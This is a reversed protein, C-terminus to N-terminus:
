KKFFGKFKNKFSGDNKEETVEEDDEDDLENLFDDDDEDAEDFSKISDFNVSFGNDEEDDEVIFENESSEFKARTKAESEDLTDNRTRKTFVIDGNSTVIDDDLKFDDVIKDLYEESEDDLEPLVFDVNEDSDDEETEEEDEAEETEEDDDSIMMQLKSIDIDETENEFEPEEEAEEQVSEAMVPVVVDEDEAEAVEEVAEPEAEAEEKAKAEEELQKAELAAAAAEEEAKAKEAAEAAAKEEEKKALEYYYDPLSEVLEIQEKYKGLLLEKMKTVEQKMTDLAAEEKIMNSRANIAAEKSDRTADDIIKQAELRADALMAQIQENAENTKVEIQADLRANDNATRDAVEAVLADAKAQA